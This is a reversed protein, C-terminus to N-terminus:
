KKEKNRLSRILIKKEIFKDYEEMRKKLLEITRVKEKIEEETLKYEKAKEEFDKKRELYSTLKNRKMYFYGLGRLKLIISPPKKFNKMLTEFIKSGVSKVLTVEIEKEKSIDDYIHTLLKQM